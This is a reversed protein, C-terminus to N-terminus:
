RGNERIRRLTNRYYKHYPKEIMISGHTKEMLKESQKKYQLTDISMYELESLKDKIMGLSSSLGDFDNKM